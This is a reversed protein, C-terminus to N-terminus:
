DEKWIGPQPWAAPDDRALPHSNRGAGRMPKVSRRWGAAQRGPIISITTPQPHVAIGLAPAVACLFLRLGVARNYVQTPERDLSSASTRRM